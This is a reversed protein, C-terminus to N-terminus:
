SVRLHRAGSALPVSLWSFSPSVALDIVIGGSTFGKSYHRTVVSGDMGPVLTGQDANTVGPSGCREHGVADVLVLIRSGAEAVLNLEM